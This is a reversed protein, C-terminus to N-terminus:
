GQIDTDEGDNEKEKVKKLSLFNLDNDKFIFLFMIIVAFMSVTIYCDAINFVPFDILEFYIFDIVYGRVARDIGNGVAGSFLLILVYRFFRYKKGEAPTRYYIWAIVAALVFSLVTLIFTMNKFSGWAAGTNKSYLFRFVGKILVIDKGGALDREVFFKVAQDAVILVAALAIHLVYEIVKKKREM